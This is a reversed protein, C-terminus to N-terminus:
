AAEAPTPTISRRRAHRARTSAAIKARTESGIRIAPPISSRVEVHVRGAPVTRDWRAEIGAVDADNEIVRYAVLLDLLAKMLNDLDRRRAPISASLRISCWGAISPPKQEKLTWGADHRWQDYEKSRHVRGKDHRWLANLSPPTPLDLTARIMRRGQFSGPKSM